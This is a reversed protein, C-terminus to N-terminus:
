FVGLLRLGTNWNSREDILVEHTDRSWAQELDSADQESDKPLWGRDAWRISRDSSPAVVAQKCRTRSPSRRHMNLGRDVDPCRFNWSTTPRQGIGVSTVIVATKNGSVSGDAM